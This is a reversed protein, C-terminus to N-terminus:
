RGLGPWPSAIWNLGVRIVSAEPNCYGKGAVCRM